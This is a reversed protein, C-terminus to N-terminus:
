EGAYYSYTNGDAPVGVMVAQVDVRPWTRHLRHLALLNRRSARGHRVVLLVLDVLKALETVDPTSLAPPTDVVVFDAGSAAESLLETLRARHGAVTHLTSPRIPLVQLQPTGKAGVEVPAEIAPRVKPGAGNMSVDWLLPEVHANDLLVREGGPTGAPIRLMRGISPRRADLDVLKVRANRRALAAALNVATTTKGEQATASTVVIITTAQGERQQAIGAALLAYM